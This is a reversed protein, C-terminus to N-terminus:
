VDTYNIAHVIARRVWMNNTPALQTNMALAGIDASGNPMLFYAYQSSNAVSNWDNSFISAIQAQGTSLDTYRDIDNYKTYVVVTGAHGPNLVPNAEIETSTLSNGWYTPNKVFTVQSNLVVETVMYPGTGPVPNEDFYSNIQGPTGFGGHNLVYQADFILGPDGGGGILGNLFLFPSKLHFTIQYPGNTYIPWMQNQMMAMAAGSPNTLGTSNLVAFSAPGFNANSFDFINLGGLFTSANGSLYYFGMFETWVQYSNFQDGNSFTVNQRLNYTYTTSDPSITWGVALDPLWSLINQGYQATINTTVLPQYTSHELWNPWPQYQPGYLQNLNRTSWTYDDIVLTRAAASTTASTSPSSSQGAFYIGAGAVAVIVIIVIAVKVTSVAKRYNSM